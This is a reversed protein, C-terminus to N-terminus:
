CIHIISYVIIDDNKQKEAWLVVCCLVVCCIRVIKKDDFALCLVRSEHGLFSKKLDGSNLDWVKIYNDWSGSM